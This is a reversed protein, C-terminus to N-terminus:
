RRSAQEAPALDSSHGPENTVPVDVLGDPREFQQVPLDLVQFAAEM